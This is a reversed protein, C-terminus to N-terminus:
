KKSLLEKLRRKYAERRLRYATEELEGAQYLDDLALIAEMLAEPDDKLAKPVAYTAASAATTEAGGERSPASRRRLGYWAGLALFAGGLGILSAPLSWFPVDEWPRVAQGRVRGKVTFRLTEGAELRPGEFKQFVLNEELTETGAPKWAEGEVKLGEPVFLTVAEVPRPVPHAVQAQGTYPLEYSFLLRQQGPPLPLTDVFGTETKQFREGLRGLENPFALNTAGQPLTFALVGEEGEPAVLTKEGRNELVYLEVVRLREQGPVELFVHLRRIVVQSPDTTADYVTIEAQYETQNPFAVVVDSLYTVDQYTVRLVFMRHERAEVNEFVFSGDLDIATEQTFVPLFDDFAQLTVTLDPPLPGGAGHKVQGRITIYFVGEPTATPSAQPTPSAAATPTAALTSTAQPTGTSSPASTAAQTAQGSPAATPSPSPLATATATPTPTATPPVAGVHTWVMLRLYRLLVAQEEESLVQGFAPMQGRGQAVVQAWDKLATGAWLAPDTLDPTDPPAEPGDGKGQPGHCAACQERYLAEGRAREEETLGLSFVYALVDWREEPSLSRFPPMQREMRGQTLVQFWALPRAEWQVQPDGIATPPITLQNVLEGDGRGQPGHCAACKEAYLTAGRQLDPAEKPLLADWDPTPPIPSPQWDPPPTVDEVFCGALLVTWLVVFLLQRWSAQRLM